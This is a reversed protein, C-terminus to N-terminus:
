FFQTMSRFISSVKQIVNERFRSMQRLKVNEVQLHRAQGEGYGKNQQELHLVVQVLLNM